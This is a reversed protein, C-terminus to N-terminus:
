LIELVNEPPRGLVAGKPSFVVPREILKPHEVMAALLMDEDAGSNNLGLEKFIAEKSRVLQQATLNLKGLASRLETITPTDELYLRVRPTIGKDEILKLTERSKSCRPNHWITITM